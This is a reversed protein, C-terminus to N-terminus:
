VVQHTELSNSTVMVQSAVPVLVQIISALRAHLIALL